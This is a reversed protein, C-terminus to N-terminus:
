REESLSTAGEIQSLQSTFTLPASTMTRKVPWKGTKINYTGGLQGFYTATPNTSPFSVLPFGFKFTNTGQLYFPQVDLTPVATNQTEYYDTNTIKYGVAPPGAFYANGGGGYMIVDVPVTSSDVTITNFVAIGAVNGSNALLNSTPVGFGDGYGDANNASYQKSVIWSANSIDTSNAGSILKNGGVYFYSGKTAKGSTLNFKYTRSSGNLTTGGMAWGFVPNGTPTTAGANNCTVVSMPSVAFDIDKTAMLQIYEHNADGGIPDALFGTIIVPAIVPPKESLVIIDSEKRPWLKFSSDQQPVLIGSYTALFPLAKSAFAADAGTHLILNGSGDNITKDGAFTEGPSAPPNFEAKTIIALANEYVDFNKAIATADSILLATINHGSSIKNVATGSLGTIQLIGNQRQLTGGTATIVISDGPFYKAADAGINVAISRRMNLRGLHQLVLLGDPMNNGSHDSTVVGTIKQSGFMTAESLLVPSGKFISKLDYISIVPNVEGGPYNGYGTKKCGTFFLIALFFISYSLIRKM